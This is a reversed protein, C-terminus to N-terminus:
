QEANSTSSPDIVQFIRAFEERLQDIPLSAQVDFPMMRYQLMFRSGIRRLHFPIVETPVNFKPSLLRDGRENIAELMTYRNDLHHIVQMLHTRTESQVISGKLRVCVLTDDRGNTNSPVKM